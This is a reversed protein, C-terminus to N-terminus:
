PEPFANKALYQPFAEYDLLGDTVLSQAQLSQRVADLDKGRFIMVGLREPHTASESKFWTAFAVRKDAHLKKAVSEVQSEISKININADWKKGRKILVIINQALENSELDLLIKGAQIRYPHMEANMFGETVYPDPQFMGRAEDSNNAHIVVIGRVVKSPDVCPGAATLSGLKALREFNQIHANQKKQIEEKAVDKTSKGTTLFVFYDTREDGWCAHPTGLGILLGFCLAAVARNLGNNMM